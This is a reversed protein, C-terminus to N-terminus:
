RFNLKIGLRTPGIVPEFYRALDTSSSRTAADTHRRVLWSAVSYGVFAGALVDSPWHHRLTVRSLSTAAATMVAAYSLPHPFYLLWPTVAAFATTAHGSPFSTSKSFPEWHDSGEDQWPRSRGSIRKLANTLLNAFILAELSAFAADQVRSNDQLLSGAFILVAAPRVASADGLEEFIRMVERNHWTVLENSWSKDFHTTAVVGATALGLQLPRQHMLARPSAKVDSGFWAVFRIPDNSRDQADSTRIPCLGLGILACFILQTTSVRSM